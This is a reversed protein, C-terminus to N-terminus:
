DINKAGCNPCKTDEKSLTSGCYKCNRQNIKKIKNALDRFEEFVGGETIQEVPKKANTAVFVVITVFMATFIGFAILMPGYFMIPGTITTAIGAALLALGIFLPILFAKNTKKNKEM